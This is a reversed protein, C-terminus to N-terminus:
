KTKHFNQNAQAAAKVAGVGGVNQLFLSVLDDTGRHDHVFIGVYLGGLLGGYGHPNRM